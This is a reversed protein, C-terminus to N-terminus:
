TVAFRFSLFWRRMYGVVFAQTQYALKKYIGRVVGDFFDLTKCTLPNRV